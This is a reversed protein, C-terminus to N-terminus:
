RTLIELSTLKPRSDACELELSEPALLCFLYKM